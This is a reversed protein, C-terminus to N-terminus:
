DWGISPFDVFWQYKCYKCQYNERVTKEIRVSPETVESYSELFERYDTGGRGMYNPNPLYHKQLRKFPRISRKVDIVHQGMSEVAEEAGCRKCRNQERKRQAEQEAAAISRKYDDAEGVVLCYCWISVLVHFVASTVFFETWYGVMGKKPDADTLFFSVPYICCMAVFFEILLPVGQYKGLLFWIQDGHLFGIAKKMVNCYVVWAAIIIVIWLLIVWMAREEYSYRSTVVM